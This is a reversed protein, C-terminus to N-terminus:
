LAGRLAALADAMIERKAQSGMHGLRFVKGALPGLSGGVALGKARLRDHWANWTMGAPTVAATVTPSPVSDSAPWLEIGLERLGNRCQQAVEEHRAFVREPGERLILRV